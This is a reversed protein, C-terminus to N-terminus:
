STKFHLYDELSPTLPGRLDSPKMSCSFNKGKMWENVEALEATTAWPSVRIEMVLTKLDIRRRKCEHVWEHLPNENDLPERHPFNNIDYHRNAGAVPDYCAIVIRLEREKEFHKRKQFLFNIFNYRAPKDGYRVLGVM